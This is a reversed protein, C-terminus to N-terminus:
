DGNRALPPEAEDDSNDSGATHKIQGFTPEISRARQRCLEQGADSALVARMFDFRGDRWGPRPTMRTSSQPPILVQTGGAVIEDIQEGHWYGTDALVTTSRQKVGLQLDRIAADLAPALHGFDPSRTSIEAALIIQGDTSVAAQANYGQIKALGKDQVLKSDPDTLNVNGVPLVPAVPPKPHRGIRRGLSDRGTAHFTEYIANPQADVALEQELRRKADKLRETRGRPVPAAQRERHADLQRAAERQWSRRGKSRRRRLEVADLEIGAEAVRHFTRAL